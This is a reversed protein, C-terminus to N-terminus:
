QKLLCLLGLMAQQIWVTPAMAKFPEHLAHGMCVAVLCVLFGTQSASLTTFEMCPIESTYYFNSAVTYTCM